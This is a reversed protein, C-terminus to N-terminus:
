EGKEEEPKWDDPPPGAETACIIQHHGANHSRFDADSDSINKYNGTRWKDRAAGNL